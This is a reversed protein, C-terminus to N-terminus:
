VSYITPLTLHTYSVAEVQATPGSPDGPYTCSNVDSNSVRTGDQLKTAIVAEAQAKPVLACADLVAPATTTSVRAETAPTTKPAETTPTRASTKSSSGCAGLAVVFLPIGLLHLNRNM